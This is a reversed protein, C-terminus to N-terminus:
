EWKVSEWGKVNSRYSDAATSAWSQWSERGISRVEKTLISDDGDVFAWDRLRFDLPGSEVEQKLSAVHAKGESMAKAAAADLSKISSSVEKPFFTQGNKERPKQAANFALLYACALRIAAASDRVYFLGHTSEFIHKPASQIPTAPVSLSSACLGELIAEAADCLQTATTAAGPTSPTTTTITILNALVGVLEFYGQEQQTLKGSASRLMKYISDSLQLLTEAVVTHEVAM